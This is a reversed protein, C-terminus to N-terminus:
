FYFVQQKTKLSMKTTLISDHVYVSCESAATLNSVTIWHNGNVHFVQVLKARSGVPRKHETIQFGVAAAEQWQNV